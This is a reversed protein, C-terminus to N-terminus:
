TVAQKHAAAQVFSAGKWVGPSSACSNGALSANPIIEPIHGSSIFTRPTCLLLHHMLLQEQLNIETCFECGSSQSGTVTGSSRSFGSEISLSCMKNNFEPSDKLHESIM